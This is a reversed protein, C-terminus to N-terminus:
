PPFSITDPKRQFNSRTPAFNNPKFSNRRERSFQSSKALEFGKIEKQMMEILNNLTQKKPELKAYCMKLNFPIRSLVIESLFIDFHNQTIGLSQLSRTQVLIKDVFQKLSNQSNNSVVELTLLERVHARILVNVDGFRDRLLDLAVAYNASTLSLGNIASLAEGTLQGRLYAFKEIESLNSESVSAVFCEYFQTWELVNGSFSPLAIKPLRINPKNVRQGVSEPKIGELYIEGEALASSIKTVYEEMKECEREVEELTEEEDPDEKLKEDLELEKERHLELLREKCEKTERVCTRLILEEVEEKRLEAQLKNVSRTVSARITKLKVSLM